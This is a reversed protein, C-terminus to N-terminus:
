NEGYAYTSSVARSPWRLWCTQLFCSTRSWLKWDQDPTEPPPPPTQSFCSTFHWHLEVHQTLWVRFSGSWEPCVGVTRSSPPRAAPGSGRSSGLMCRPKEAPRTRVLDAHTGAKRSANGPCFLSQLCSDSSTCSRAHAPSRSWRPTNTGTWLSQPGAPGLSPGPGWWGAPGVLEAATGAAARWLRRYRQNGFPQCVCRDSSCLGRGWVSVQHLHTQLPLHLLLLACTGAAAAQESLLPWLASTRMSGLDTQIFCWKFTIFWMIFKNYMMFRCTVLEYCNMM